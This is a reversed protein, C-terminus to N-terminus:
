LGIELVPAASAGVPFGPLMSLATLLRRPRSRSAGSIAPGASVVPRWIPATRKGDGLTVTIWLGRKDNFRAEIFSEM